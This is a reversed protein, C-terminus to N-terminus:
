CLFDCQGSPPRYECRCLKERRRGALGFVEILQRALQPHAEVPLAIKDEDRLWDLDRWVECGYIREPREEPALKRLANVCSTLVGLHTPHKDAPNHLYLTHPRCNRLLTVLMEVVKEREGESKVARSPFKLQAQFSYKGLDAAANQEQHRVQKMQEDTYHAYGGTRASGGGDTVTVGGFWADDAEYCTAIGHYAFIELDDQHAGIALHTTRAFATKLSVADPVHTLSEFPSIVDTKM